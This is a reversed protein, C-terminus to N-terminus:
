QTWIATLVGNFNETFLQELQERREANQLLASLDQKEKATLSGAYYGALLIKFTEPDM